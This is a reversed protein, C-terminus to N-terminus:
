DALQSSEYLRTADLVEVGGDTARLVGEKRYVTLVRSVVERVTGVANALEQQSIPALLPGNNPGEIVLDLLHRAVRQRVTGFAADALEDVLEFSRTAIDHAVAWSLRADAQIHQKMVDASVVWASSAVLSQFQCTCTGALLVTLGITDGPRAYGITVQRDNKSRVFMRFLGSVVLAILGESESDSAIYGPSVEVLKGQEFIPEVLERPLKKWFSLDLAQEVLDRV